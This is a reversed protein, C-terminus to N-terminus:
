ETYSKLTSLKRIQETLQILELIQDNIIDNYVTSKKLTQWSMILTADDFNMSDTIRTENFLLDTMTKAKELATEVNITLDNIELLRERETM